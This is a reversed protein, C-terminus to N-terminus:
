LVAAWGSKAQPCYDTWRHELSMLKHNFTEITHLLHCANTVWNHRVRQPGMSQLRSAGRDMPNELCSYQLPYGNGEGPSRESGPVSGLCLFDFQVAQANHISASKPTSSGPIFSAPLFFSGLSEKVPKSTETTQTCDYLHILSRQPPIRPRLCSISCWILAIPFLTWCSLKRLEFHSVIRLGWWEGARNLASM